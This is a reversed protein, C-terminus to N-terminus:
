DKDEKEKNQKDKVQQIFDAMFARVVLAGSVGRLECAELFDNKLTKDLRIQFSENNVTKEIKNIDM